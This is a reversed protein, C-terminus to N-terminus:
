SVDGDDFPMMSARDMDDKRAPHYAWVAWGVFFVLFALTMVGMIWMGSVTQAAENFLPNM